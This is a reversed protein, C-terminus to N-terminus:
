GGQIYTCYCGEISLNPSDACCLPQNCGPPPPFFLQGPLCPNTPFNLCNDSCSSYAVGCNKLAQQLAWNCYALAGLDAACSLPNGTSCDVATKLSAITTCILFATWAKKDCNDEANQCGALCGPSWPSDRPGVRFGRIFRINTTERGLLDVPRM